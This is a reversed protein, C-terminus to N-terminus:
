HTTVLLGHTRWPGGAAYHIAPPLCRAYSARANSSQHFKTCRPVPAAAPVSRTGHTRSLAHFRGFVKWHHPRTASPPRHTAPVPGPVARGQSSARVTTHKDLPLCLPPTTTTTPYDITAREKVRSM